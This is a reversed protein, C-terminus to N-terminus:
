SCASSEIRMLNASNPKSSIVTVRTSPNVSSKSPVLFIIALISSSALFLWQPSLINVPITCPTPSTIVLVEWLVTVDIVIFNGFTLLKVMPALTDILPTQRM